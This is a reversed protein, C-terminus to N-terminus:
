SNLLEPTAPTGFATIGYGRDGSSRYSRFEKFEKRV